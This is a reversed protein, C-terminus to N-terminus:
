SFVSFISVIYYQFIINQINWVIVYCFNVFGICILNPKYSTDNLKNQSYNIEGFLISSCHLDIRLKTKPDIIASSKTKGHKMLKESLSLLIRIRFTTEVAFIEKWQLSHSNFYHYNLHTISYYCIYTKIIILIFKWAIWRLISLLTVNRM